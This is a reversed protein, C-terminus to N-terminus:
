SSKIFTNNAQKIVEQDSIKQKEALYIRQRLESSSFGHSRDNFYLKFGLDWGTFQKGQWDKGLFRIDILRREKFDKLLQYLDAETNYSVVEDVFRIAKVIELREEHSQVPKNKEPRDLSPDGQVGVILYDCHNKCDQFM